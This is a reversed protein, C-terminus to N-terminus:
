VVHSQKLVTGVLYLPKQLPNLGSLPFLLNNCPFWASNSIILLLNQSGRSLGHERRFMLYYVYM